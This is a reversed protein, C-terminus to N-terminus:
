EETGVVLTDLQEQDKDTLFKSPDAKKWVKAMETFFKVKEDLTLKEFSTKFKLKKMVNKFAATYSDKLQTKEAAPIEEEADEESDETGETDEETDAGDEAAETDETSEEDAPDETDEETDEETNEAETEDDAEITFVDIKEQAPAPSQPAVPTTPIPNMDTNFEQPNCNVCDPDGAEIALITINTYGCNALKSLIDAKASRPNIANSYAEGVKINGDKTASYMVTFAATPNAFADSPTATKVNTVVDCEKVEEKTEEKDETDESSTDEQTEETEESTEDTEADIILGREVGLKYLNNIKKVDDETLEEVDLNYLYKHCSAMEDTNLMCQIKNYTEVDEVLTGRVYPMVSENLNCKTLANMYIDFDTLIEM